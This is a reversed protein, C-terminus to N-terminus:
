LDVAEQTSASSVDCSTSRAPGFEVVIMHKSNSCRVDNWGGNRTLVACDEDDANNPEGDNWNSYVGPVAVRNSYFLTNAATWTWHDEVEDDCGLWVNEGNSGFDYKLWEFVAEQKAKCQISLLRGHEGGHTQEKAFELAQSHLVPESYFQYHMDGITIEKKPSTPLVPVPVKLSFGRAEIMSVLQQEPMDSLPVEESVHDNEDYFYLTPSKGGVWTIKFNEFGEGMM